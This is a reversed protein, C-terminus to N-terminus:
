GPRQNSLSYGGHGHLGATVDAINGDNGVYVVALGSEDVGHEPLGAGETGV